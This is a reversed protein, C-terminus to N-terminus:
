RRMPKVLHNMSFVKKLVDLFVPDQRKRNATTTTTSNHESVNVVVVLRRTKCQIINRKSM